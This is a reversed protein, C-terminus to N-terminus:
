YKIVIGGGNGELGEGSSIYREEENCREGERRDQWWRMM